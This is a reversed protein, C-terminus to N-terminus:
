EVNSVGLIRGIQRIHNLDHGATMRVIHEISEQGRESHIGFQKWQEPTLTKLLELNAERLVRHQNLDKRLDRKEYHLAAVWSDQDFAQVPAGPSGLSLRLRWGIAIEADALHAIIEAVSWQELAPRRCLTAESLGEVLEELKKPTDAQVALADLGEVHTLIRTTYQQATENM